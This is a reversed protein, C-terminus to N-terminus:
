QLEGDGGTARNPGSMVVARLVIMQQQDADTTPVLKVHEAGILINLRDGFVQAHHLFDIDSSLLMKHRCEPVLRLNMNGRLAIGHVTTGKAQAHLMALLAPPYEEKCVAVVSKGVTTNVTLGNM